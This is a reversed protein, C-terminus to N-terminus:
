WNLLIGNLHKILEKTYTANYVNSTFLNNINKIQDKELASLNEFGNQLSPFRSLLHQRIISPKSAALNIRNKLLLLRMRVLFEEIERGILSKQNEPSYLIGMHLYLEEKIRESQQRKDTVRKTQLLNQDSSIKNNEKIAQTLEVLCKSQKDLQDNIRTFNTHLHQEMHDIRDSLGEITHATEKSAM